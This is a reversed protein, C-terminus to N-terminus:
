QIKQNLISINHVIKKLLNKGKMINLIYMASLCFQMLMIRRCNKSNQVYIKEAWRLRGKGSLNLQKLYIVLWYCNIGQTYWLCHLQKGRNQISRLKQKGVIISKVASTIKDLLRSHLTVNKQMKKCTAPERKQPM